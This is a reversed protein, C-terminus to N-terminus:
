TFETGKPARIPCGAPRQTTPRIHAPSSAPRRNRAARGIARGRRPVVTLPRLRSGAAALAALAARCPPGMSKEVWSSSRWCRAAWAL